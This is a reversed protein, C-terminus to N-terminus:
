DACSKYQTLAESYAVKGFMIRTTRMRKPTANKTALQAAYSNNSNLAAAFVFSSKCSRLRRLKSTPQSSRFKSNFLAVALSKFDFTVRVMAADLSCGGGGVVLRGLVVRGGVVGAGGGGGGGGNLGNKLLNAKNALEDSKHFGVIRGVVVVVVVVVVSAGSVVGGGGGGGDLRGRGRGFGYGRGGPKM